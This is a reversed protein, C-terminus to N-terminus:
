HLLSVQRSMLSSPPFAWTIEVWTLSSIQSTVKLLSFCVLENDLAFSRGQFYVYLRNFEIPQKPFIYTYVLIYICVYYCHKFSIMLKLPLPSPYSPTHHPLFPLSSISHNFHRRLFLLFFLCVFIRNIMSLLM